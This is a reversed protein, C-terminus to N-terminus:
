ETDGGETAVEEEKGEEELANESGL